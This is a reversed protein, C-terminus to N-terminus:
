LSCHCLRCVQLLQHMADQMALDGRCHHSALAAVAIASQDATMTCLKISYRAVPEPFGTWHSGWSTVPRTLLIHLRGQICDILQLYVTLWPLLAQASMFLVNM